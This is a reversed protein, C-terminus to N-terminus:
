RAGGPLPAPVIDEPSACSSCMVVLAATLV